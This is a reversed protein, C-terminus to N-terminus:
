AGKLLSRDDYADLDALVQAARAAFTHPAIKDRAQRAAYRRAPSDQLYARLVDELQGPSFSPVSDGFTEASESRYDSVQFVGCAALEYARPNLSQAGAVHAVDRGYTQSTRYLNLGIKARRYLNVARDNSVPGDRVYERLHHRSGLLSWNGYLGLDIGTWDVAALESIREEFGTGVFVVDHAPLEEDLPLRPSHRLPDYAHRLYGAGLRQASSRETTWVVDVLAALRSQQEDEYPSESCLLATKLRARRMSIFADKSLYMGSLIFVWDVALIEAMDRADRSAWYLVDFWNPKRDAPKGIKRWYTELWSKALEFRKDLAYQKVDVGAQKFAEYYGVFM